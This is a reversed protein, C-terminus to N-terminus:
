QSVTIKKVEPPLTSSTNILNDNISGLIAIRHMADVQETDFMWLCLNPLFPTQRFIVLVTELICVYAKLRYNTIYVYGFNFNMIVFGSGSPVKISRGKNKLHITTNLYKKLTNKM